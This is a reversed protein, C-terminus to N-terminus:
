HYGTITKNKLLSYSQCSQPNNTTPQSSKSCLKSKKWRTQPSSSSPIQMTTHLTSTNLYPMPNASQLREPQFQPWTSRKLPLFVVNPSPYHPNANFKPPKPANPSKEHLSKQRKIVSKNNQQICPHLLDRHPIDFPNIHHHTCSTTFSTPPLTPSLHSKCYLSPRTPKNSSSPIPSMELETLIPSPLNERFFDPYRLTDVVSGTLSSPPTNIKWICFWSLKSNWDFRTM